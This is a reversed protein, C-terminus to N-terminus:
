AAILAAYEHELPKGASDRWFEAILESTPDPIIDEEDNEVGDFIARAM